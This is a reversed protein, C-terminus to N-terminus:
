QGRLRNVSISIGGCGSSSFGKRTWPATIPPLTLLVKMEMMSRRSSSPMAAEIALM